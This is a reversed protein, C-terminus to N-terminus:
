NQKTAVRQPFFRMHALRLWEYMRYHDIVGDELMPAFIESDIYEYVDRGGARRVLQHVDHVFCKMDEMDWIVLLPHKKPSLAEAKHLAQACFIDMSEEQHVPDGLTLDDNNTPTTACSALFFSLSLIMFLRM